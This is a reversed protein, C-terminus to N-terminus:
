SATIATQWRHPLLEHVRSAPQLLQDLIMPGQEPPPLSPPDIPHPAWGVSALGFRSELEAFHPAFERGCRDVFVVTAHSSTDHLTLCAVPHHSKLNYTLCKKFRRGEKVAHDVMRYDDPHSVPLWERSTCILSGAEIQLGIDPTRAIAAIMVARAGEIGASTRCEWAEKSNSQLKEYVEQDVFAPVDPLHKFTVRWGLGVREAHMWEAILIMRAGPQGLRRLRKAREDKIAGVRNSDFTEPIYLVDSLPRRKVVISGAAKLLERRVVFWSRKGEMNPSWRSLGSEDFLLHLLAGLSFKTPTNSVDDKRARGRVLSPM